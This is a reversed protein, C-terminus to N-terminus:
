TGAGCRLSAAMQCIKVKSVTERFLGLSDVGFQERLNELWSTKRRGQGRKGQDEGGDCASFPPIKM